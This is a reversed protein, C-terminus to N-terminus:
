DFIPMAIRCFNRSSVRAGAKSIDRRVLWGASSGLAAGGSARVMALGTVGRWPMEMGTVLLSTGQLGLRGYELLFGGFVEEALEEVAVDFDGLADIIIDVRVREVDTV